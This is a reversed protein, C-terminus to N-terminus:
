FEALGRPTVEYGGQSYVVPDLTFSKTYTPQIVTFVVRVYVENETDKTSKIAEYINNWREGVKTGSYYIPEGAKITFTSGQYKETTSSGLAGTWYNSVVTDTSKIYNKGDTSYEYEIKFGNTASYNTITIDNNFKIAFSNFNNITNNAEDILNAGVKQDILNLYNLEFNATKTNGALDTVIVEYNGEGLWSISFRKSTNATTRVKEVGNYKVVVEFEGNDKVTVNGDDTVGNELKDVTITPISKDITFIVQLTVISTVGNIYFFLM